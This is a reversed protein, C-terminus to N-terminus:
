EEVGLTQLLEVIDRYGERGLRPDDEYAGAQGNRARKLAGETNAGRRVLIPIIRKQRHVVAAILPTAGYDQERREIEAGHDLLWEVWEPKDHYVCDHLPPPIGDVSEIAAPDATIVRLALDFDNADIADFLSPPREQKPFDDIPPSVELSGARAALLRFGCYRGRGHPNWGWRQASRCFRASNFYSGGRVSRLSNAVCFWDQCWEWVNGLMDQFGWANPTKQGVAHPREDANDHHWAVDRPEGHRPAASGARCAYEWEAETPLRYEFGDPLVGAARDLRTLQQCYANALEWSVSDVPAEAIPEHDTPNTGTVAAYQAQTVPTKGLYFDGAITVERQREWGRHGEEPEPSGMTFAGAPVRIM